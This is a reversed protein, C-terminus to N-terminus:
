MRSDSIPPDIEGKNLNHIDSIVQHFFERRQKFIPKPENKHSRINLAWKKIKPSGNKDVILSGNKRIKLEVIVQGSKKNLINAVDHWRIWKSKKRSMAPTGMGAKIRWAFGNDSAVLLGRESDLVCKTIIVPDGVSDKNMIKNYMNERDPSLEWGEIVPM